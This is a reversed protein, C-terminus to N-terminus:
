RITAPACGCRKSTTYELAADDRRRPWVGVPRLRWVAGATNGSSLYEAVVGVRLRRTVQHARTLNQTFIGAALGYALIM